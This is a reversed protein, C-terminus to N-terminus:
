ADVLHGLDAQPHAPRDGEVDAALHRGEAAKDEHAAPPDGAAADDVGDSSSVARVVPARGGGAPGREEAM